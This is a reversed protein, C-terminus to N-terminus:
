VPPTKIERVAEALESISDAIRCLGATMGMVAETLSTVHGGSEDNSGVVNATIADGIRKFAYIVERIQEGTLEKM